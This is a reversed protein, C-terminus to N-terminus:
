FWLGALGALRERVSGYARVLGCRQRVLGRRERVSCACARWFRAPPVHPRPSTPPTPITIGECSSMALPVFTWLSLLAFAISM